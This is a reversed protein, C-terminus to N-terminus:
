KLFSTLARGKKVTLKGDESLTPCNKPWVSIVFRKLCEFIYFHGLLTEDTRKKWSQLHKRLWVLCFSFILTTYLVPVSTCSRSSFQFQREFNGEVPPWRPKIKQRLLNSPALMSCQVRFLSFRYRCITNQFWWPLQSTPWNALWGLGRPLLVRLRNHFVDGLKWIKQCNEKKDMTLLPFHRYSQM